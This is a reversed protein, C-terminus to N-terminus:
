IQMGLDFFLCATKSTSGITLSALGFRQCSLQIFFSKISKKFIYLLSMGGEERLSGDYVTEFRGKKWLHFRHVKVTQTRQLNLPM